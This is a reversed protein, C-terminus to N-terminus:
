RIIIKQQTEKEHKISPKVTAAPILSKKTTETSNGVSHLTTTAPTTTTIYSDNRSKKIIDPHKLAIQMFPPKTPKTEKNSNTTHENQHKANSDNTSQDDPHYLNLIIGPHDAEPSEDSDSSIKTESVNNSNHSLEQSSNQTANMKFIMIDSIVWVLVLFRM